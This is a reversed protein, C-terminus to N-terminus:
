QALGALKARLATVEADLALICKCLAQNRDFTSFADVDVKGDVIAVVARRNNTAPAGEWIVRPEGKM